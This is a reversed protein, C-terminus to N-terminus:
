VILKNAQSFLFCILCKACRRTFYRCNTGLNEDGLKALRTQAIRTKLSGWMYPGQLGSITPALLRLIQYTLGPLVNHLTDISTWATRYTAVLKVFFCMEPAVPKELM